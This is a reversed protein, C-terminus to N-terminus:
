RAGTTGLLVDYVELYAAVTAEWDFDRQVRRVAAHAMQECQAPDEVLTLLANALATVDGVPVLLGTVGDEVLEPNGGVRTAVVPLGSAMAELVTNSIGEGLSPLVFVDLCALLEPIDDRDGAMWVSGEIGLEAILNELASREPGDGVLICRLSNRQQPSSRLVEAFALLVLETIGEDEVGHELKLKNLLCGVEDGEVTSVWLSELIEEAKPSVRQM